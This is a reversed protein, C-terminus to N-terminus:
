MSITPYAKPKPVHWHTTHDFSSRPRACILIWLLQPVEGFLLLLCQGPPSERTHEITQRRAATAIARSASARNFPTLRAAKPIPTSKRCTTDTNVDKPNLHGAWSVLSYLAAEKVDNLSCSMAGSHEMPVHPKVTLHTGVVTRAGPGASTAPTAGGKSLSGGRTALADLHYMICVRGSSNM